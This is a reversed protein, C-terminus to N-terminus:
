QDLMYYTFLRKKYQSLTLSGTISLPLKNWRAPVRHPFLGSCTRSFIRREVLRIGCGRVNSTIVSLALSSPTCNMLGHLCKYVTIMDLYDRYHHLSITELSQLRDAYCMTELGRTRKFQRQVHEVTVIDSILIPSWVPYCYNIIPLIYYQFAPWLLERVRTRFIRRIANTTKAAKSAISHCQDSYM